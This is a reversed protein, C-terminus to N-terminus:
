YCWMLGIKDEVCRMCNYSNAITFTTVDEDITEVDEVEFMIKCHDIRSLNILKPIELVWEERGFVTQRVLPIITDFLEFWVRKMKINEGINDYNNYGGSFLGNHAYFVLRETPYNFNCVSKGIGGTRILTEKKHAVDGTFQVQPVSFTYDLPLSESKESCVIDYSLVCGVDGDVRNEPNIPTTELELQIKHLMSFPIYKKKDIATLGLVGTGTPCSHRWIRDIRCGGINLTLEDWNGSIRINSIGYHIIPSVHSEACLEGETTVFEGNQSLQKHHPYLSHIMHVYRKAPESTSYVRREVIRDYTPYFNMRDKVQKTVQHRCHQELVVSILDLKQQSTLGEAAWARPEFVETSVHDLEKAHASM